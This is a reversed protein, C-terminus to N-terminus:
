CPQTKIIELTSWGDVWGSVLFLLKLKFYILRLQTVVWSLKKKKKATTNKTTATTKTLIRTTKTKAKTTRTRTRARVISITTETTKGLEALLGLQSLKLQISM